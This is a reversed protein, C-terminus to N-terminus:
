RPKLEAMLDAMADVSPRAWSLEGPLAVRGYLARYRRFRRLLRRRPITPRGWSLVTQSSLNRNQLSLALPLRRVAGPQADFSRSAQAHSQGLEWADSGAVFAYNNSACTFRSGDPVPTVPRMRDLLWRMGPPRAELIHSTWFYGRASGDWAERLRVALDPALWDDDDVPVVLAGRPAEAPAVLRAGEVGHLTAEAIEKLRQRFRHYPISFTENWMEYKPRFDGILQSRVKAEDRWDLTRRVCICIAPCATPSM